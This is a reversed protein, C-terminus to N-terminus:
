IGNTGSGCLVVAIKEDPKMTFLQRTVAAVATAAGLEIALGTAAWVERASAEVQDEAVLVIEDVYQEVLAFNIAETSRAALIPVITKVAELKVIQQQQRCTWMMPCGAAEVGIIRIGPKLLKAAQAVGAILGGGGISVVLTDVDPWQELIELAMTGQGIIVDRDAYPHLLAGGTQQIRAGAADWSQDWFDGEVTLKAGYSEIRQRTLETSTNMVFIDAPLALQQGVYAVAAGFNGGSATALGQERVEPPLNLVRNFAGRAKFSGTVQCSEAKFRLEIGEVPQWPAAEVLPTKRVWPRVRDLAALYDNATIDPNM